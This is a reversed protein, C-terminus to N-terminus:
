PLVQDPSDLVHLRTVALREDGENVQEGEHIAVGGLGRIGLTSQQGHLTETQSGLLLFVIDRDVTFNATHPPSNAGGVSIGISRRSQVENTVAAM